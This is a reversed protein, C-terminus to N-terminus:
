ASKKFIEIIKDEFGKKVVMLMREQSESLPHELSTGARKGNNRFIIVVNLDEYAMFDKYLKLYVKFIECVEEFEM